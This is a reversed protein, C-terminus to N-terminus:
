EEAELIRVLPFLIGEVSSLMSIVAQGVYTAQKSPKCSHVQDHSLFGNVLWLQFM